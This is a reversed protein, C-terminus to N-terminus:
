PRAEMWVVGSVVDPMYGQLYFWGDRMTTGALTATRWDDSHTQTHTHSNSCAGRMKINVCAINQKSLEVSCERENLKQQMGTRTQKWSCINYVKACEKLSPLHFSTINVNHEYTGKCISYKNTHLVKIWILICVTHIQGPVIKINNIDLHMHPTHTCADASLLAM